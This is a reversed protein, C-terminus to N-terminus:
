NSTHFKTLGYREQRYIVPLGIALSASHPAPLPNRLFRVSGHLASSLPKFTVEHSLLCVEAPYNKTFRNYFKLSIFFCCLLSAFASHADEALSLVVHFSM